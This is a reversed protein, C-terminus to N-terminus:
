SKGLWYTVSRTYVEKLTLESLEKNFYDKAAAKVGYNGSGLDITNMYSELIQDKTYKKELETALYAEQLKRKYTQERSLIKLKILQQTITSGGHTSDTRINNFFAGVIRKIDIGKHTYFREDEIAIFAYQLMKPIDDISASIRNELGVFSTILDGNSDYIFSTEDQNEIKDLDLEPTTDM